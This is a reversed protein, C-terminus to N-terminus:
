QSDDEIIEFFLEDLVLKPFQKPALPQVRVGIGQEIMLRALKRGRILRIPRGPYRDAAEVAKDSFDATTVIIGQSAGYRLMAGRLEDVFRRQVPGYQKVQILVLADALETRTRAVLDIGGFQSRGRWSRCGVIRVERYGKSRLLVQVSQELAAFSLWGLHVWVQRELERDYTEIM